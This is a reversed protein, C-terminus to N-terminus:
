SPLYVVCPQRGVETTVGGAFRRGRLCGWAYFAAIVFGAVVYGAFYYAGM